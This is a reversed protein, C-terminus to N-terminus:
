LIMFKLTRFQNSNFKLKCFYIGSPLYSLDLKLRKKLVPNKTIHKGLNNFLVYNEIIDSTEIEIFDNVPNQYKLTINEEFNNVSLTSGEVLTISQNSDVNYMIDETGSLWTVKIYDININEGVGFTQVLSNQSLYGEGCMIYRFQSNDNISIEIKSGIADRNSLTGVLKLKIYNNNTITLNNWVLPAHNNNNVIVDVLGDNNTDGIATSYSSISNDFGATESNQFIEFGLNEYFGYSPFGGSGDYSCSVYLDLDGDNESDFFSAGWSWSNLQAGSSESINTFTEDGNNKLLVTSGITTAENNPTNTMFIDLYGDSNFDDITVSMADIIFDTGSSESIDAFTGDGNNKYLRNQYIKDNAIYLDQWGDNNFDFFGSCFTLAVENTLGVMDTVETFTGDCNSQYLYNTITTGDKYNSLYVDLCGDNNIDGWSAGFTYMNETVFGASITVDVLSNDSLREFLRNGDTQSTVFLDKDGDNDFDVWNIAKNQFNLDIPLLSEQVFFGDYNKYFQISQGDGTGLTIDDWGDGDYDVFSIGGGMSVVGTGQTIGVINSQNAFSVQANLSVLSSLLLIVIFHKM